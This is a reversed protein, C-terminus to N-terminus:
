LTWRAPFGYEINKHDLGQVFMAYVDGTRFSEDFPLEVMPTLAGREFLVLSCATAGSSFISFNIGGPVVTSGFPRPRGPGYAFGGREYKPSADM